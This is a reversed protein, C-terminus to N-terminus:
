VAKTSRPATNDDGWAADGWNSEVSKFEHEMTLRRYEGKYIFLLVSGVLLLLAIVVEPMAWWLNWSGVHGVVGIPGTKTSYHHHLSSLLPILLASALNGLLQQLAAITNESVPFACEVGLENCTAQLPGLFLAALFVAGTVEYSGYDTTGPPHTHTLTLHMVLMAISCLLMCKALNKHLDWKHPLTGFVAGGVMCVVLFEAGVLGAEERTFGNPRVLKALMTSMMNIVCESIAFVVLTTTFGKIHFVKIWQSWDYKEVKDPTSWHPHSEFTRWVLILCLTCLAAITFNYKPFDETSAVLQPGVLYALAAGATNANVALNTSLTREGSPFWSNSLRPPSNVFVCMGLSAFWQGMYVVMTEDAWMFSGWRIWAGVTQFLCAWVLGARLGYMDVVYAGLFSMPIYTVFYIVESLAVVGDGYRQAALHAFPAFSFCMMQNMASGYSLLFLMWWRTRDIADGPRMRGQTHFMGGGPSGTQVGELHPHEKWVHADEPLPSPAFAIGKRKGGEGVTGYSPTPRFLPQRDTM